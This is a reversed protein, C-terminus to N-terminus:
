VVGLGEVIGDENLKSLVDVVYERILIMNQNRWQTERVHVSDNSVYVEGLDGHYVIWDQNLAVANENLGVKTVDIGGFDLAQKELEDPLQSTAPRNYRLLDIPPSLGTDIAETSIGLRDALPSLDVDSSTTNMIIYHGDRRLPNPIGESVGEIFPQNPIVWYVSDWLGLLRYALEKFAVASVRYWDWWESEDAEGPLGVGYLGSVEVIFDYSSWDFDERAIKRDADLYLSYDPLLLKKQFGALSPNPDITVREEALKHKEYIDNWMSLIDFADMESGDPLTVSDRNGRGINRVAEVVDDWREKNPGVVSPITFAEYGFPIENRSLWAAVDVELYSRFVTVDNQAIRDRIEQESVGM